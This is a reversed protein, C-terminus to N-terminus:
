TNHENESEGIDVRYEGSTSGTPLIEWDDVLSSQTSVSRASGLPSTAKSLWFLESENSPHSKQEINASFNAQNMTESAPSSGCPRIGISPLVLKTQAEPSLISNESAIQFIQFDQKLPVTSTSSINEHSDINSTPEENTKMLDNTTSLKSNELDTLLERELSNRDITLTVSTLKQNATSTIPTSLNKNNKLDTLIKEEEKKEFSTSKNAKTESNTLYEKVFQFNSGFHRELYDNMRQTRQKQREIRLKEFLDSDSDSECSTPTENEYYEEDINLLEEEDEQAESFEEAEETVPELVSRKWLKENDLQSEYEDINSHTYSTIHEINEIDSVSQFSNEVDVSTNTANDESHTFFRQFAENFRQSRQNLNSHTSTRPKGNPAVSNAQSAVKSVVRKPSDELDYKATSPEPPQERKAESEYPLENPYVEDWYQDKVLEPHEHHMEDVILYSVQLNRDIMWNVEFDDDDEGFPNILTEAVKLWGMYFFFQLTIFIPSYFDLSEYTNNKNYTWQHALLSGVFFSYVAITVVQTYVLPISIFDYYMLTGCLGRFSNLEDIITKVAFDDRIRGEKRARTIISAAWVIPMWHKPYKPFSNDMSEIIKKENELLLGADVLHKMKPFRKKVCPSIMTFVITLCLCVYRMVTRRMVRSGEDQGHVHASVFVAISDPWPITIYQEWWRTMVLNVYFGLVFSLPILSTYSACYYVISEFTRKAEEDLLYVYIWNICYYLTLFLVLDLWILKYISGRWQNSKFLYLHNSIKIIYYSKVLIQVRSATNKKELEATSHLPPDEPIKIIGDTEYPMTTPFVEDWYQDKILEPHENHMEDVILYSVQLNRDILWNVEFDDDDDGFPCILSEAVKLWGMFFLYELVTFFPFFYDVINMMGKDDTEGTWQHGFVSTLLYSYVAITVVQTYVLPISITDYFLLVMCMGRFSNLSDILTKLSSDDRIRGEKRARTVISSAWVIPMWHKPHKAFKENMNTLIVKENEVLLGVDVLHDLTPFRKKVRPSIMTLVMTLSLCVYRMITRRMKRGNEDQGRILSSVYVATSDPWPLTMYQEWWRKIVISVYFGLVFMLPILSSSTNCYKVFVEFTKKQDANLLFRYTGNIAYYIGIYTLVDVWILKYISARWRLLLKPFCGFWTSHAVEATYSVTMIM